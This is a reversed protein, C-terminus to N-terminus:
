CPFKADFNQYDPQNSWRCDCINFHFRCLLTYAVCALTWTREAAQSNHDEDQYVVFVLVMVSFESIMTKVITIMFRVVNLCFLLHCGVDVDIWDLSDFFIFFLARVGM